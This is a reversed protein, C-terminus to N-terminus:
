RIAASELAHGAVRVTDGDSKGLLAQALPSVHSLTGKEPDAQKAM